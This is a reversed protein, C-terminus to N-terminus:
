GFSSIQGAQVFVYRLLFGGILVLLGAAIEVTRHPRFSRGRALVPVLEVVETALPVLLGLLVVGIWFLGTFPGGLIMLLSERASRTSLEGHLIYPVIILLELLIFIVDASVLLRRGEDAEAGREFAPVLIMLLASATSLASFLFLQAVMPTNWFPRAPVAGLLVGTYIGVGLGIPLGAAALLNKWVEIRAPNWLRLREPLFLDLYALSVLTFLTLLWTGVWMPSQPEFAFFLKWFHLPRGLDFVLLASGLLVPFPAVFAGLRALVTYREQRGFYTALGSIVMAGASLGGLMLYTVVLLGWNREM